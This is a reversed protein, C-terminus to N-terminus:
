KRLISINNKVLNSLKNKLDDDLYSDNILEIYKDELIVLSNIMKKISSENLGISLGFKLFDNYHLNTKKGNLPLALEENDNSLVIKTSLMDYSNSLIYENSNFSTEILSLNKLHLDSNGVIFSFVIRIFLESIDLGSHSSYKKIFNACREYSGKYKDSTIRKDLQAFDEMGLKTDKIRDIRKTIYVYNSTNKIYILGFPVVKINSIKAIHMILFENEPLLKYEETQPKLIYSNYFNHATLGKKNRNNDLSLSLKKQVGPVLFGKNISNNVLEELIKEDLDLTPFTSSNFFNKICSKHWGNILEKEDKVIKNCCLCRKNM